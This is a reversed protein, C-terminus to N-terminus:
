KSKQKQHEIIIWSQTQVASTPMFLSCIGFTYRNSIFYGKKLLKMFAFLTVIGIM